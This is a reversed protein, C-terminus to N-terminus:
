IISVNKEEEERRKRRGRRKKRRRRQQKHTHTNMCVHMYVKKSVPNIKGNRAQSESIWRGRGGLHQPDFADVVRGLKSV